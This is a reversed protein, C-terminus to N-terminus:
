LVERHVTACSILTTRNYTDGGRVTNRTIDIILSDSKKKLATKQFKPIQRMGGVQAGQKNDFAKRAQPGRVIIVEQLGAGKKDGCVLLRRHM